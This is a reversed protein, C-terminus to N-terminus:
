IPEAGQRKAEPHESTNFFVREAQFLYGKSRKHYSDPWFSIDYIGASFGDPIAFGLDLHYSSVFHVVKIAM